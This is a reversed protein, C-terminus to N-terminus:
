EKEVAIVMRRNMHMNAMSVTLGYKDNFRFNGQPLRCPEVNALQRFGLLQDILVAFEDSFFPELVKTSGATFAQCSRPKM